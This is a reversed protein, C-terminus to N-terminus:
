REDWRTQLEWVTWWCGNDRWEVHEVKVLIGTERVRFPHLVHVFQQSHRECCSRTCGIRLSFREESLVDLEVVCVELLTDVLKKILHPNYIRMTAPEENM